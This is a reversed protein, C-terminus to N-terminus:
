LCKMRMMNTPKSNLYRNVQTSVYRLENMLLLRQFEAPSVNSEPFNDVFQWFQKYQPNKGKQEEREEVIKNRYEPDKLKTEDIDGFLNNVDFLQRSQLFNDYIQSENTSEDDIPSLHKCLQLAHQKMLSKGDDTKSCDPCINNVDDNCYWHGYIETSNKGCINCTVNHVEEIEQLESDEDEEESDTGSHEAEIEVKGDEEVVEEGVQEGLEEGVQEILEEGVQEGLEEGLEEVVEEGLEEGVQEGLEEVVEEDVQEGVQEGLEEGVQEGDQKLEAEENNARNSDPVAVTGTVSFSKLFSEFNLFTNIAAENKKFLQLDMSNKEDPLSEDSIQVEPNSPKEEKENKKSKTLPKKRTVNGRPIAAYKYITVTQDPKELMEHSKYRAVRGEVQTLINFSTNGEFIHLFRVAKLDIGAYGAQSLLLVKVNEGKVNKVSNFRNLLENKQNSTLKGIYSETPIQFMKLIENLPKLAREIFTSYVVHKGEGQLINMLLPYFKCAYTDLFEKVEQLQLRSATDNAHSKSNEWITKFESTFNFKEADYMDSAQLSPYRQSANASSKKSGVQKSHASSGLMIQELKFQEWFLQSQLSSMITKIIDKRIVLPMSSSDGGYYSVINTFKSYNKNDKVSYMISGDESITKELLNLFVEKDLKNTNWNIMSPFEQPNILHFLIGVEYDHSKYPTGTLAVIRCNKCDVLRKYLTQTASLKERSTTQKTDEDTETAEPDESNDNDTTSTKVEQINKVSNIFDHVEDMIILNNEFKLSNISELSMQGYNSSIFVFNKELYEPTNGCVKCYNTKWNEVLSAPCIIFVKSIMNRKLMEDAIGIASCTKGSGLKHFLLLGKKSEESLFYNLVDKQHNQFDIHQKDHFNKGCKQGTRIGGSSTRKSSQKKTSKQESSKRKSSTRKTSQKTSQKKDSQKTSQKKSSQKKSSQKTSKQESSKRKSSKKKEIDESYKDNGNRNTISETVLIPQIKKKGSKFTNMQSSDDGISTIAKSSEDDNSFLKESDLEDTKLPINQKSM